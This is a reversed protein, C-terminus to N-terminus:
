IAHRRPLADREELTETLSDYVIMADKVMHEPISGDKAAEHIFLNAEDRLRHLTETTFLWDPVARTTIRQTMQKGQTTGRTPPKITHPSQQM